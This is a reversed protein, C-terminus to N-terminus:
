QYIRYQSLADFKVKDNSKSEPETTDKECGHPRQEEQHDAVTGDEGHTLSISKEERVADSKEQIEPDAIGEGFLEEEEKSTVEKEEMTDESQSEAPKRQSEDNDEPLHQESGVFTESETEIPVASISSQIVQSSINEADSYGETHNDKTDEGIDSNYYNAEKEFDQNQDQHLEGESIKKKDENEHDTENESDEEDSEITPQHSSSINKVGEEEEDDDSHNLNSENRDVKRKIIEFAEHHSEMEEGESYVDMETGEMKHGDGQTDSIIQGTAVATVEDEFIIEVLSDDKAADISHLSGEVHALGEHIDESFTENETGEEPKTIKAQDEREFQSLSSQVLTEEPQLRLSEEDVAHADNEVTTTTGDMKREAAGLETACVDVNALGSYPFVEVPEEAETTEEEESHLIEEDDVTMDPKHGEADEAMGLEQACVDVNSVGSFSVVDTAELESQPIDQDALSNSENENSERDVQDLKSIIPDREEETGSLDDLQVDAGPFRNVSEGESLKRELSVIHKEEEETSETSNVEESINIKTPSVNSAEASHNLDDESQSEYSTKRFFAM